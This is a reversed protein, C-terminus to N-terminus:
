TLVEKVVPSSEQAVKPFAQTFFTLLKLESVIALDVNMVALEHGLEVVFFSFSKTHLMKLGYLNQFLSCWIVEKVFIKKKFLLL